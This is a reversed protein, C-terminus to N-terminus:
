NNDTNVRNAKITLFLNIMDNVHNVSLQSFEIQLNFGHLMENEILHFLRSARELGAKCKSNQEIM